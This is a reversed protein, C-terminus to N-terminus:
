PSRASGDLVDNNHLATAIQAVLDVGIHNLPSVVPIVVQDGISGSVTGSLDISASSVSKM